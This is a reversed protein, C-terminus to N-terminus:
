RSGEAEINAPGFGSASISQDSYDSVAFGIIDVEGTIVDTTKISKDKVKSLAEDKLKDQWAASALMHIGFILRLVVFLRKMKGGM